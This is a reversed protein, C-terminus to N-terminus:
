DIEEAWEIRAGNQSLDLLDPGHGKPYPADIKKLYDLIAEFIEPKDLYYRRRIERKM